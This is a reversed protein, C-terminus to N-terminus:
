EEKTQPRRVKLSPKAPRAEGKPRTSEVTGTSDTEWPPSEKVRIVVDLEATEEDASFEADKDADVLYFRNLGNIRYVSDAFKRMNFVEGAKVLMVERAAAAAEDGCGKVTLSRLRFQRGENVTVKFDAVGEGTDTNLHFEPEVEYEYQIFGEDAYLRKLHENLWRVVAESDAIDGLKLPLFERLRAAPFFEAGELRVEGLRYLEKEDLTVTVTEGAGTREARPEGAEARLYGSRRMFGLVHTRLCYDFKEPQFEEDANGGGYCGKMLERLRDSTFLRNGEFEVGVDKWLARPAAGAEASVRATQTQAAAQAACLSSVVLLFVFKVRSPM